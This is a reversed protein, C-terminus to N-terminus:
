AYLFYEVRNCATREYVKSLSARTSADKTAETEEWLDHLAAEKEDAHTEDVLWRHIEATLKRDHRSAAFARIIKQVYDKM